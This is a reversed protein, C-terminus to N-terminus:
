ITRGFAKELDRVTWRIWTPRGHPCHDPLACLDLQILLARIESNELRQRGRVARHCAMVMRCQDLLRALGDKVGSELAKEALEIVMGGAHEPDLLAPVAKVVFATGGFPEIELGLELLDGLLPALARAEAFGLEVTAPMLLRQSAVRGALPSLREYVVREHAAHQDIVILEADASQCILYTGRFQGILTLDAFRRRDAPDAGLVPERKVEATLGSESANGVPKEPDFITALPLDLPTKPPNRIPERAFVPSSPQPYTAGIQRVEGGAPRSEAVSPAWPRKESLALATAVGSQVLDHVRRQDAFRVEHKAPHVNVDVQDFPLALFLVALPFRGKILRGQFGEFLAHQVVKDRVRRGNIFIYLGRSTARSLRAPGVYGRLEMDGDQAELPMLERREISGIVEVVRQGADEVRSWEHVLRNNHSLRLHVRPSGLAMGAVSDAIHGLETAVGKLFKRRAPTNFFLRAVSVLTGQPAGTETVTQIRGGRVEVRVGGAAGAARTILTLQSVAAISPLAEGRFGLSRIAFLDADGTLKSTAFRELSLLADDPQMGDGNDAVRILSRGGEEIDIAIRDAHADLANEVLEKVVSAPREVVEGAAIQNALLDPLIRIAGM